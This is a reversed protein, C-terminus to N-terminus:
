HKMRNKRRKQRHYFCMSFNEDCNEFCGNVLCVNKCKKILRDHKLINNYEDRGAKKVDERYAELLEMAEIYRGSRKLKHILDIDIVQAENKGM